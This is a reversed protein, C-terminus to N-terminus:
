NEEERLEALVGRGFSVVQAIFCTMSAGSFCLEAETRSPTTQIQGASMNPEYEYSLTDVHLDQQRRGIASRRGNRSLGDNTQFEAILWVVWRRTTLPLHRLHKYRLGELESMTDSGSFLEMHAHKRTNIWDFRTTALKPVLNRRKFADADRSAETSDLAHSRSARDTDPASPSPLHARLQSLSLRSEFDM